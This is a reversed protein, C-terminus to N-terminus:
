QNFWKVIEFKKLNNIIFASLYVILAHLAINTDLTNVDIVAILILILSIIVFRKKM